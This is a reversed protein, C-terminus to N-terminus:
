KTRYSRRRSGEQTTAAAAAAETIENPTNEGDNDYDELYVEVIKKTKDWWRKINEKPLQLTVKDFTIVEM